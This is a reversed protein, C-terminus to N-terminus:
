SARRSVSRRRGSPRCPTVGLIRDVEGRPLPGDSQNGAIILNASLEVEALLEADELPVNFQDEVVAKM